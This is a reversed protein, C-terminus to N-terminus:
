AIIGRARLERELQERSEFQVADMGLRRGAEVFEAIDDTYFCEEPACGACQLAAQYIPEDPKLAGVEYSLVLHHFHKLHPYETQIMAFHIPNTNSMLVLRYQSALEELLSEPLLERTFISTWIGCFHQYDISLGLLESFRRYFERPALRGTELEVALGSAAVRRPIEAASYRCLGELALYGRVFDFHVLVRGLDFILAQYRRSAHDQV